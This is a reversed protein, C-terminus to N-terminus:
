IICYNQNSIKIFNLFNKVEFAETKEFSFSHKIDGLFVIKKIKYGRSNIEKFTEALEKKTNELQNFPLTIGENNLMKEYGLHLDGVALIEKEPFFVTKGILQYEPIKKM